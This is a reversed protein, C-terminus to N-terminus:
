DRRAWLTADSTSQSSTISSGYSTYPALPDTKSQRLESPQGHWSITKTWTKIGTHGPSLTIPSSLPGGSQIEELSINLSEMLHKATDSDMMRMHVARPISYRRGSSPHVIEGTVVDLLGSEAAERVSMKYSTAPNEILREEVDFSQRSLNDLFEHQLDALAQPDDILSRVREGGSSSPDSSPRVRVSLGPEMRHPSSLKIITQEERFKPEGTSMRHDDVAEIRFKYGEADRRKVAETVAQAAMMPSAILAVIGSDVAKKLSVKGGSKLIYKGDSDVVERSLAERITMTQGSELDHLLSDGDIVDRDVAVRFTLYLGSKKDRIRGSHEDFEESYLVNTLNREDGGEMAEVNGTDIFGEGIADNITMQRGSDPDIFKNQAVDILGKGLAEAFTMKDVRKLKEGISRPIKGEEIARAVPIIINQDVQVTRNRPDILGANVAEILNLKRKTRYDVLFPETVSRFTDSDILGKRSAEELTIKDGTIINCYSNTKPDILGEILASTVPVGYGKSPDYIGEMTLSAYVSKLIDIWNLKENTFPNSVEGTRPNIINLDVADAVSIKEGSAPHCVGKPLIESLTVDLLGMNAAQALSLAEGSKPNVYTLSRIDIIKARIADALSIKEGHADVVGKTIANQINSRFVSYTRTTQKGKKDVRAIGVRQAEQLSMIRGNRKDRIKDIGVFEAHPELEVSQVQATSKVTTKTETVYPDGHLQITFKMGSSPDVYEGREIGGEGKIVKVMVQKGGGLDVMEQRDSGVGRVDHSVAQEMVKVPQVYPTLELKQEVLRPRSPTPTSKMATGTLIGTSLAHPFDIAQSTLKNYVVGERPNVVARRIAEQYTLEEGTAPDHVIVSREDILNRSIADNLPVSINEDLSYRGTTLDLKGTVLGTDFSESTGGGKLLGEKLAESLNFSRGTSTDRVTALTDDVINEQIAELLSLERNSRRDIVTTDYPNFLGKLIAEKLTMEKGTEPHTFRGVEPNYWGLAIVKSLTDESGTGVALAEKRSVETRRQIKVSTRVADAANEPVGGTPYVRHQQAAEALSYRKNERKDFYYHNKEDIIGWKEAEQFTMERGTLSDMVRLDEADIKGRHLADDLTLREGSLHDVLDGRTADFSWSQESEEIVPHGVPRFSMVRGVGQPFQIIKKGSSSIPTPPEPEVHIVAAEIAEQMSRRIGAITVFGNKDMINQRIAELGTYSKGSKSDLVLICKPNIIGLEFAEELTITRGTGPPKVSGNSLNIYGKREAEKIHFGDSPVEVTDRGGTVARYVSVGGPGGVATTETKKVRRVSTVSEDLSKDPYIKPALQQSTEVVSESTKEEITPGVGGIKSPVIWESSPDVLGQSLADQLSMETDGQRFRQTRSDILGQKMAEALTVKVQDAALDIHRGPRRIRKKRCDKKVPAILSPHIDFLASLRIAGRLSMLNQDHAEKPTLERNTILDLFVAKTPDILGKVVARFVTMESGGEDIIGIKTSLLEHLMPDIVGKDACEGLLYSDKTALNVIREARLIIAGAEVAENFSMNENTVTNKIGKVDFISHRVRKSLLGEHVAEPITFVKQDKLLVIKGEPSLLGRELAEIMSIVDKADPDVIHRVEPDLLGAAIAELLTYRRKTGGDIFKGTSDILGKGYIETLTMPKQIFDKSYAESLSMSQRQQLDTFNCQRTNIANRVIAEALTVRTGEDTRVIEPIHLNLLSNQKSVADRLTIKEGSRKDVFEGTNSNILGLQIADTLTIAIMPSTVRGGLQIYGNYLADKLTLTERTYKGTFEGTEPNVVGQELCNELSMPPLKLVGIKILRHQTDLSVIGRSICDYMQLVEGTNIDRIQRIDPDYLGIQIAELLSLSEHTEPHFIGHHRKLVENFSGDIYGLEAAKELSIRAGSVIDFFEGGGSHLDLLGQRVAEVFTLIEGTQKHLVGEMEYFQTKTITEEQYMQMEDEHEAIKAVDPVSDVMEFNEIEGENFAAQLQDGHSFHLVPPGQFCVLFLEVPLLRM